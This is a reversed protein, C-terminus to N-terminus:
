KFSGKAIFKVVYSQVESNLPLFSHTGEVTVFDTQGKVFTREVAVNGDHQGPFADNFVLTTGNTGAIVGLKYDVEGFLHKIKSQDTILQQGAPGYFYKFLVNDKMADAAESGQNPVAIHVVKGMKNPRYDKLIARLLLGGMSFGVFHVPKNQTLHQKIDKTIITKLKALDFETSPYSVNIVEYGQDALTNALSSMQMSGIFIGHMVVVYDSRNSNDRNIVYTASSCSSIFTIIITIILLKNVKNFLRPM